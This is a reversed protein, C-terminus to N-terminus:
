FARSIFHWLRFVSVFITQQCPAAATQWLHVCVGTPRDPLLRAPGDVQRGTSFVSVQGEERGGRGGTRQKWASAGGTFSPICCMIGASCWAATAQSDPSTSPVGPGQVLSQLEDRQFLVVKLGSHTKIVSQYGFGWNVAPLRLVQLSTIPLRLMMKWWGCGNLMEADEKSPKVGGHLCQKVSM